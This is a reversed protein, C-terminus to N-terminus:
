HEHLDCDTGILKTKGLMKAFECYIHGQKRSQKIKHRGFVTNVFLSLLPFYPLTVTLRLFKFISKRIEFNQLQSIVCPNTRIQRSQRLYNACNRSINKKYLLCRSGWQYIESVLHLLLIYFDNAAFYQRIIVRFCETDSKVIQMGGIVRLDIWLFM